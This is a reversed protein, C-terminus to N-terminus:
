RSLKTITRLFPFIYLWPVHKWAIRCQTVHWFRNFLVSSPLLTMISYFVESPFVFRATIRLGVNHTFEVTHLTQKAYVNFLYSYAVVFVKKVGEFYTVVAPTVTQEAIEPLIQGATKTCKSAIECKRRRNARFFIKFPVGTTPDIGEQERKKIGEAVM